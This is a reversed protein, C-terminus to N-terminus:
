AGMEKMERALKKLAHHLIYGVNSVTLGTRDSMEKYSLSEEFKLKVLEKSRADLADMCIRMRGIAEMRQLYEDPLPTSEDVASDTGEGGDAEREDMSVVRRAGRHYNMALNHTTRYLWARPNEVTEFLPHLRLFADQVIDEAVSRNKVLKLAYGLLESEYADFAAASSAVKRKVAPNTEKAMPMTNTTRKGFYDAQNVVAGHLCALETM